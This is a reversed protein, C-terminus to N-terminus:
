EITKKSKNYEKIVKKIFEDDITEDAIKAQIVNFDCKKILQIHKKNKKKPNELLRNKGDVLFVYEEKEEVVLYVHDKDHGAKSMALLGIM